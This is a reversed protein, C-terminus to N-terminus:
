CGNGVERTSIVVRRRQASRSLLCHAENAVHKLGAYLLALPALVAQGIVYVLLSLFCGIACSFTKM